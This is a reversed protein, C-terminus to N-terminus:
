HHCHDSWCPLLGLASLPQNLFYQTVVVVVVFFFLSFSPSLPDTPTHTHSLFHVLTYIYIYPHFVFLIVFHESDNWIEPMLTSSLNRSPYIKSNQHIHSKHLWPFLFFWYVSDHLFPIFLSFFIPDLDRPCGIILTQTSSFSCLLTNLLFINMVPTLSALHLINWPLSPWSYALHADVFCFM